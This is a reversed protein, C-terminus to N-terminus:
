LGVVQNRGNDKAQYLAEDARVFISETTDAEQAATVGISVTLQLTHDDHDFVHAAVLGKLRDLMLVSDEMSTIPLLIVFEEGGYRAFIDSTRIVNKIYGSFQILVADGVSHGYSDNIRKFFDIDIIAVCFNQQKRQLLALHRSLQDTFYRRNYQKTLDDHILMEDMMSMLKKNKAIIEYTEYSLVYSSRAFLVLIISGFFLVVAIRVQIDLPLLNFCFLYLLTGAVMTPVYSWLAFMSFRMTDLYFVMITFVISVRWFTLFADSEDWGMLYVFAVWWIIALVEVIYLMKKANINHTTLAQMAYVYRALHLLMVVGIWVGIAVYDNSGLEFYSLLISVAIAYKASMAAHKFYQKEYFQKGANDLTLPVWIKKLLEFM